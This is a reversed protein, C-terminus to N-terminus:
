GKFSDDFIKEAKQSDESVALFVYNGNVKVVANNLQDAEIPAYGSYLKAQDAVRKELAAKVDAVDDKSKVKFVAVEDADGGSGAYSCAYSEFTSVDLGYMFAINDATGNVMEPFEIGSVVSDRVASVDPQVENKNDGSCGVMMAAAMAIAAFVALYKKKM